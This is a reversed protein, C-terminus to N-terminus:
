PESVVLFELDIKQFNERRPGVNEEEVVPGNGRRADFFHGSAPRFHLDNLRKLRGKDAASMVM